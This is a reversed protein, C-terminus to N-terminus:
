GDAPVPPTKILNLWDPAYKFGPGPRGELKAAEPEPVPSAAGLAAFIAVLVTAIVSKM